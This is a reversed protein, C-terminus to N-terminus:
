FVTITEHSPNRSDSLFAAIDTAMDQTMLKITTFEKFGKLHNKMM